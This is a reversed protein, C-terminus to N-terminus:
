LESKLDRTAQTEETPQPSEKLEEGADGDGAVDTGIVSAQEKGEAPTGAETQVLGAGDELGTEKTEIDGDADKADGAGIEASSAPMVTDKSEDVKELVKEANESGESEDAKDSLKEAKESGEEPMIAGKGSEDSKEPEEEDKTPPSAAAGSGAAPDYDVSSSKRDEGTVGSDQGAEKEEGGEEENVVKVEAEKKAKTHFNWRNSPQYPSLDEPLPLFHREAFTGNRTWTAYNDNIFKFVLDFATHSTREHEQTGASVSSCDDPDSIQLLINIPVYSAGFNVAREKIFAKAPPTWLHRQMTHVSDTFCVAFVRKKMEELYKEVMHMTVIGGYSHAVIAVNKAKAPRIFYQWIYQGHEEPTKNGKINQMKGNIPVQNLNPNCVIVEYGEKLARRIYPLQSGTDINENIILKRSWQGARVAGGGHILVMLKDTTDMANRSIFVFSQPSGKGADLEGLADYRQQNYNHDKERIVFQFKGGDKDRLEG